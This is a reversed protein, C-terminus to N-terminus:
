NRGERLLATLYMGYGSKKLPEALRALAGDDIWGNRWAIEEVCGVKTGTAGLSARLVESLRSDPADGLAKRTVLPTGDARVASADAVAYGGVNGGMSVAFNIVQKISPYQQMFYRAAAISDAAGSRISWGYNESPVQVQDSYDM